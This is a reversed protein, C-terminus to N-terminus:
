PTQAKIGPRVEACNKASSDARGNESASQEDAIGDASAEALHSELAKAVDRMGNSGPIAEEAFLEGGVGSGAACGLGGSSQM